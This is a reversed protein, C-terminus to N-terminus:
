CRVLKGSFFFTPVRNRLALQMASWTMLLFLAAHGNIFTFGILCEWDDGLGLGCAAKCYAMLSTSMPSTLTGGSICDIFTGPQILSKM